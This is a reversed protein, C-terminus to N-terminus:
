LGGGSVLRRVAEIMLFGGYAMAIVIGLFITTIARSSTRTM